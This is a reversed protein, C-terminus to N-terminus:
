RRRRFVQSFHLRFARAAGLTTAGPLLTAAVVHENDARSWRRRRRESTIVEAKAM